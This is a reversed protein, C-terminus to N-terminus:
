GGGGSQALLHRALQDHEALMAEFEARLVSLRQDIGRQEQGADAAGLQARGPRTAKHELESIAAAYEGLEAELHAVTAELTGPFTQTCAM